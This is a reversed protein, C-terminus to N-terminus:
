ALGQSLSGMKGFLVIVFFALNKDGNPSIVGTSRHSLSREPGEDCWGRAFSLCCGMNCLVRWFRSSLIEQTQYLLLSMFRGTSGILTNILSLIEQGM